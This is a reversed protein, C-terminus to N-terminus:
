AYRLQILTGCKDCFKDGYQLERGCNKCSVSATQGRETVAVTPSLPPIIRQLTDSSLIQRDPSGTQQIVSNGCTDCFKASPSLNSGCTDCFTIQSKEPANQVASTALRTFDTPTKVIASREAIIKREEEVTIPAWADSTEAIKPQALTLENRTVSPTPPSVPTEAQCIRNADFLLEVHYGRASWQLLQSGDAHTNTSTPPGVVKIIQKITKGKLTGLSAFDSALRRGPARVVIWYLSLGAILPAIIYLVYVLYGSDLTIEWRGPLPITDV